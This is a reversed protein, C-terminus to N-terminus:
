VVARLRLVSESKRLIYDGIYVVTLKFHETAPPMHKPPFVLEDLDGNRITSLHKLNLCATRLLPDSFTASLYHHAVMNRIEAFQKLDCYVSKSILGLAYAAASRAAFSGLNSNRSDLLGDSVKGEILFNKLLSGLCADLYGASIVIVSFDPEGNLVDFFSQTDKRLLEAPALPTKPM